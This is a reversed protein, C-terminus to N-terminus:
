RVEGVSQLSWDCSVYMEQTAQDIACFLFWGILKRSGSRYRLITWCNGVHNQHHSGSLQRCDKDLSGESQRDWLKKKQLM